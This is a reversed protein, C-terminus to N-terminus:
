DGSLCVHVLLLWPRVYWAGRSINKGSKGRGRGGHGLFACHDVLHPIFALLQVLTRLPPPTLDLFGHSGVSHPHVYWSGGGRGELGLGFWGSGRPTTEPRSAAGSRVVLGGARVPVRGFWVPLWGSASLVLGFWIRILWGSGIRLPVRPRLGAPPRRTATCPFRDPTRDDVPRYPLVVGRGYWWGQWGSHPRAGTASM